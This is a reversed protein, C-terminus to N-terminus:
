PRFEAFQRLFGILYITGPIQDRAAISGKIPDVPNLLSQLRDIDAVSRVPDSPGISAIFERALDLQENFRVFYDPSFAIKGTRWQIRKPLIGDLARRILYRQYGNQVNLRSPLALCFELVRKDILPYSGRILGFATQGRSVAHKTLWYRLLAAQYRRQDPWRCKWARGAVRERQFERALLVIPTEGRAPFMMQLLQNQMTRVPSVGRTARLRRLERVLTAWRLSFALQAYYRHSWSSPGFEGGEGGLLSQAGSELAAKECEEYLYYNPARMPSTAFRDPDSLCDFPGRGPATVYRIRVNPWSRFEDIYEGEDRIQGPRDEPLVAAIATLERNRKALCQAAIATISSSDLGGSLLAVAPRDSLRCAVAEFLIERLAEYVEEPRQFALERGLKLEWYRHQRVRDREVTMWSGAPLSLIGAHFTEEHHLHHATPVALAALKRRNPKRPVDPYELLPLMNGAFIFRSGSHWFLFARHGIHDRCCYLRKRRDDWIAFAFEGLLYNACDEGWKAYAALLLDHDSPDHPLSVDSGLERQLGSRNHLEVDAAIRLHPYLSSPTGGEILPPDFDVAGRLCSHDLAPALGLHPM